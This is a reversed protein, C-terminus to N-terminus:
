HVQAGSGRGQSTGPGGTGEEEIEFKKRLSEARDLIEQKAM